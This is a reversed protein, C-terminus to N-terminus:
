RPIRLGRHKRQKMAAKTNTNSMSSSNFREDIPCLELLAEGQAECKMAPDDTCALENTCEITDVVADTCDAGYTRVYDAFYSNSDSVCKQQTGYYKAFDDPYCEAYWLCFAKSVRDFRQTSVDVGAGSDGRNPTKGGDVGDGDGGGADHRHKNTTDESCAAGGLLLVAATLRPIRSTPTSASSSM